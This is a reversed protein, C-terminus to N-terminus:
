VGSVFSLMFIERADPVIHVSRLFKALTLERRTQLILRGAPAQM